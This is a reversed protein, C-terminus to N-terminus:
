LESVQLIDIIGFYLVVEYSEARTPDRIPRRTRADTRAAMADMGQGLLPRSVGGM